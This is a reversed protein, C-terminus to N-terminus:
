RKCPMMLIYILKLLILGDRLFLLACVLLLIGLIRILNTYSKGLLFFKFKEVIFSVSIKSVVLFFYFSTTFLAASLLSTQLARVILPAGVAFWFLYPHPSLANVLIGKWLSDRTAEQASIELAKVTINKYGLYVIVIAGILSTIGLVADKDSFRSLLFVSILFIPLDTILPALSIKLGEKVGGKLTESVVLILLPGPSFGAALGLLIGSFLFSLMCDKPTQEVCHINYFSGVPPAAM